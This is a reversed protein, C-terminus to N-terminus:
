VPLHNKKNSAVIPENTFFFIRFYNFREINKKLNYYKILVVQM